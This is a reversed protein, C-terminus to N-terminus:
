IVAYKNKAQRRAHFSTANTNWVKADLLAYLFCLKYFLVYDACLGMQYPSVTSNITAM